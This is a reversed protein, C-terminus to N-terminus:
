IYYMNKRIRKGHVLFMMRAESDCVLLISEQNLVIAFLTSENRFAHKRQSFRAKMRTSAGHESDSSESAAHPTLLTSKYQPFALIGVAIPTHLTSEYQAFGRTGFAFPTHLTSKYQSFSPKGVAFPTLPTSKYQAFSLIGVALLSTSRFLPYESDADAQIAISSLPPENLYM